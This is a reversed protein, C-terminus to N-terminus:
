LCNWRGEVGVLVAGAGAASLGAAAGGAPLGVVVTDRGVSVQLDGVAVVEVLVSLTAIVALIILTGQWSNGLYIWLPAFVFPHGIYVLPTLLFTSAVRAFRQIPLSSSKGRLLFRICFVLLLSLGWIALGNPELLTSM